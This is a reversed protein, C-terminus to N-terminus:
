PECQMTRRNKIGLNQLFNTDALATLSVRADRHRTCLFLPILNIAAAANKRDAIYFKLRLFWNLHKNQCVAYPLDLPEVLTRHASIRLLIIIDRSLSLAANKVHASNVSEDLM